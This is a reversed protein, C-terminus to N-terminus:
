KKKKKELLLRCVLDFRSQLESTHEESRLDTSNLIDVNWVVSADLTADGKAVPEVLKAEPNAIISSVENFSAVKEAVEKTATISVVNSSYFSKYDSVNDNDALYAVVDEQTTEAATKLANVVAERKATKVEEDSLNAQKAKSAAESAAQAVDS